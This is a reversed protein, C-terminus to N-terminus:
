KIRVTFYRLSGYTDPNGSHGDTLAMTGSSASFTLTFYYEPAGSLNPSLPLENVDEGNWNNVTVFRSIFYTRRDGVGLTFTFLERSMLILALERDTLPTKLYANVVDLIRRPQSQTVLLNGQSTASGLGTNNEPLLKRLIFAPVPPMGLVTNDATMIGRMWAPDGIIGHNEEIM